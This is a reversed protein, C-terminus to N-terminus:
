DNQYFHLQFSEKEELEKFPRYFGQLIIIVAPYLIGSPTYLPQIFFQHRVM